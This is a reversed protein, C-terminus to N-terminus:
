KFLFAFVQKQKNNIYTPSLLRDQPVKTHIKNSALKNLVQIIYTSRPFANTNM